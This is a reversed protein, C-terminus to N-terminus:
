TDFDIKVSMLLIKKEIKAATPSKDSFMYIMLSVELKQYLKIFGTYLDYVSSSKHAGKYPSVLIFTWKNGFDAM